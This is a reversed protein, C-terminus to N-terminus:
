NLSKIRDIRSTIETVRIGYKEDQVVVQGRAILTDNALIDVPEGETKSLPVASGPGLKLLEHIQIRTRGLEVTLEIPIDLVLDLDYDEPAAVEDRNEPRIETKDPIEEAPYEAPQQQESWSFDLEVIAFEEGHTFVFRQLNESDEAGMQPDEIRSVSASSHECSFGAKVIETKLQDAATNIIESILNEAEQNEDINESESGNRAAMMTRAFEGSVQIRMPGSVDGSFEIQGVVFGADLSIDPADDSYDIEM